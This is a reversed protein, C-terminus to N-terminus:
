EDEYLEPHSWPLPVEIVPKAELLPKDANEALGLSSSSFQVLVGGERKDFLGRIGSKKPSFVPGSSRDEQATIKEILNEDMKILVSSCDHVRNVNGKDLYTDSIWAYTHSPAILKKQEKDQSIFIKAKKTAALSVVLRQGDKELAPLVNKRFIEELELIAEHEMLMPLMPAYPYVTFDEEIVPNVFPIGFGKNLNILAVYNSLKNVRYNRLSYRVFIAKDGNKLKFVPNRSTEYESPFDINSGKPFLIKFKKLDKKTLGLYHAISAKTLYEKSKTTKMYSEVLSALKPRSKRFKKIESIFDRKAKDITESTREETEKLAKYYLKKFDGRFELRAGPIDKIPDKGGLKMKIAEKFILNQKNRELSNKAIAKTIGNTYLHFFLVSMTDHYESIARQAEKDAFVPFINELHKIVTEKDLVGYAEREKAIKAKALKSLEKDLQALDKKPGPATAIATALVAAPAAWILRSASRKFPIQM